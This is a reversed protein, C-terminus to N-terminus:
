PEWDETSLLVPLAQFASSDCPSSSLCCISNIRQRQPTNSQPSARCGQQPQTTEPHTELPTDCNGTSGRCGGFPSLSDHLSLLFFRLLTKLHPTWTSNRNKGSILLVISLISYIFINEEQLKEMFGKKPLLTSIDLNKTKQFAASFLLVVWFRLSSTFNKPASFFVM